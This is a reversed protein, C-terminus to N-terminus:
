LPPFGGPAPRVVCPHHGPDGGALADAPQLPRRQRRRPGPRAHRRLAHRPDGAHRHRGSHDPDDE